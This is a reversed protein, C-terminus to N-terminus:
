GGMVHFPSKQLESIVTGEKEDSAKRNGSRSETVSNPWLPIEGKEGRKQAADVGLNPVVPDPPRYNRTM